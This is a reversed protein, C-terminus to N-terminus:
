KTSKASSHKGERRLRPFCCTSNPEEPVESIFQFVSNFLGSDLLAKVSSDDAQIWTLVVQADKATLGTEKLYEVLHIVTSFQRSKVVGLVRKLTINRTEDLIRELSEGPLLTSM